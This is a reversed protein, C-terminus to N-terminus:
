GVSHKTSNLKGLSHLCPLIDAPSDKHYQSSTRSAMNSDEIDQDPMLVPAPSPAKIPLNLTLATDCTQPCKVGTDSISNANNQDKQVHEWILSRIKHVCYRKIKIRIHPWQCLSVLTLSYHEKKIM